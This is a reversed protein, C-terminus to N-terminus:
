AAARFLPVEQIVPTYDRAQRVFAQVEEYPAKDDEPGDIARLALNSFHRSIDPYNFGREGNIRSLERYMYDFYEIARKNRLTLPRLRDLLRGSTCFSGESVECIGGDGIRNIQVIDRDFVAWDGVNWTLEAMVNRM